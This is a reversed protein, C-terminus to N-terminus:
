DYLNFKKIEPKIESTIFISGKSPSLIFDGKYKTKTVYYELFETLSKYVTGEEDKLGTYEVWSDGKGVLRIAIKNKEM